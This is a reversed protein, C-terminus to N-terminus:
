DNESAGLIEIQIVPGIIKKEAKGGEYLSKIFERNGQSYNELLAVMKLCNDDCTISKQYTSFKNEDFNVSIQFKVVTGSQLFPLIESIQRARLTREGEVESSDSEKIFSGVMGREEGLLLDGELRAGKGTFVLPLYYLGDEPYPPSVIFGSLWVSTVGDEGTALELSAGGLDVVVGEQGTSVTIQSKIKQRSFYFYLVGELLVVLVIIGLVIKIIKGHKTKVERDPPTINADLNDM